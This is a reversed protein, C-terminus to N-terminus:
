QHQTNKPLLRFLNIKSSLLHEFHEFHVGFASWFRASFAHLCKVSFLPAMICAIQLTPRPDPSPQRCARLRHSPFPLSDSKFDSFTECVGLIRLPHPPYRFAERMGGGRKPESAFRACRLQTSICYLRIYTYLYIPIDIYVYLYM